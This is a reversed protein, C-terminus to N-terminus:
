TRPFEFNLRPLGHDMSSHFVLQVAFRPQLTHVIRASLPGEGKLPKDELTHVAPKLELRGIGGAAELLHQDEDLLLPRREKYIAGIRTLRTRPGLINVRFGVSM